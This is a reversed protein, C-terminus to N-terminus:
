EAHELEWELDCLLDFDEDEVQGKDYAQKIADFLLELEDDIFDTDVGISELYHKFRYNAEMMGMWNGIQKHYLNKNIEKVSELIKDIDYQVLSYKNM